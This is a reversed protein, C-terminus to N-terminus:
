LIYNAIILTKENLRFVYFTYSYKFLCLTAALLKWIRTESALFVITIFLAYGDNEKHFYANHSIILM